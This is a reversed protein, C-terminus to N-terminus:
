QEDHSSSVVKLFTLNLKLTWALLSPFISEQFYIPRNPTKNPNIQRMIAVSKLKDEKKIEKCMNKSFVTSVVINRWGGERRERLFCGSAAGKVHWHSAHVKVISNLKWKM